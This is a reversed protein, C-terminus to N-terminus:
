IYYLYWLNWLSKPLIAGVKIINHPLIWVFNEVIYWDKWDNYICRAHWDWKSPLETNLVWDKIDFVYNADIKGTFVILEKWKYKDIAVTKMYVTKNYTKKIYEIVVRSALWMSYGFMKWAVSKAMIGAINELDQKTLEIWCNNAIATASSYYTCWKTDPHQCYQKM